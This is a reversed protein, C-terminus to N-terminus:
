ASVEARERARELYQVARRLRLLADGLGGISLNCATCLVGRVVGTEHDHDPVLKTRQEDAREAGDCVECRQGARMLLAQWEVHSLGYQRLLNSDRRKAHHVACFRGSTAQAMCDHCLGLRKKKEHHQTNRAKIREPHSTAFAIAYARNKRRVLELNAVYYQKRRAKYKAPDARRDRKRAESIEERHGAYYRRQIGRKKELDNM